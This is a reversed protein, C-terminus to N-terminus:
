EHAMLRKGPCRTAGFRSCGWFAHGIRSRRQRMDSGCLPCERFRGSPPPHMSWGCTSVWVTEGKADTAEAMSGECNPCILYNAADLERRSPKVKELMAVLADGDILRMDIGKAFDRAPQTFGSTTVVWGEDFSRAKARGYVAEVVERPIPQWRRQKVQVLIRRGAREAILDVGLDDGYGGREKVTYGEGRLAEGAAVEFQGWPMRNLDAITRVNDIATQRNRRRERALLYLATGLLFSILVYLGDVGPAPKATLRTLAISIASGAVGFAVIVWWGMGVAVDEVYDDFLHALRRM